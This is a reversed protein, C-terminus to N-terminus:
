AMLFSMEKLLKRLRKLKNRDFQAKQVNKEM